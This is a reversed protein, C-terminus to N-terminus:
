APSPWLWPAYRMEQLKRRYEALRLELASSVKGTGPRIDHDSM